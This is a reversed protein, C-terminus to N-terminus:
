SGAPMRLHTGSRLCARVVPASIDVAPVEVEVPIAAQRDVVIRKPDPEPKPAPAEIQSANSDQDSDRDPWLLVAGIATWLLTGAVAAIAILLKRM